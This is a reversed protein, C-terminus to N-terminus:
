WHHGWWQDDTYRFQEMTGDHYYYTVLWWGIIQENLAQYYCTVARKIWGTSVQPIPTDNSSAEPALNLSLSPWWGAEPEAEGLNDWHDFPMYHRNASQPDRLLREQHFEKEQKDSFHTSRYSHYYKWDQETWNQPGGRQQCLAQIPDYWGQDRM